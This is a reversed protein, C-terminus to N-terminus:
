IFYIPDLMTESKNQNKDVNTNIFGVSYGQNQSKTPKVNFEASKTPKANALKTPKVNPPVVCAAPPNFNPVAAGVGANGPVVLAAGVTPNAM